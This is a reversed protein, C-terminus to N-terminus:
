LSAEQNLAEDHDNPTFHQSLRYRQVKGLATTPLAQVFFWHRPFQFDALSDILQMALYDQNLVVEKTAVIAVAVVEGLSKDPLPFAAVQEVGPLSAIASEIDQPYINIGGSIILDKKRGAYYLYEQEDLYGLDGTKFFVGSFASATAVSQRYYGSFEYPSSVWIEGVQRPLCDCGAEDVIRIDVGTLAKGVTGSPAQSTFEISTAIAVESAGYCEFLRCSLNDVLRKKVDSDLLASSSVLTNISSLQRATAARTFDLQALQSSVAITFTIQYQEICALWLAQTYNPLVVATGGILLSLLLLRQALSHYLPTAILTKDDSCLQYLDAAASARKFKTLQSLAIPKPAGTSGSTMTLIFPIADDNCQDSVRANDQQKLAEVQALACSTNPRAIFLPYRVAENSLEDVIGHWVVLASADVSNCATVLSEQTSSLPVPVYTLRYQAAALLLLSAHWGNPLLSVLRDGPVLGAQRFQHCQQDISQKLDSYTWSDAGVILVVKEPRSQNAADIANMLM